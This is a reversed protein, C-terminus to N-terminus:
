ALLKAILATDGFQVLSAVKGDTDFEFLDYLETEAREGGKASLVVRWRVAAKLGDVLAEERHLEHFTVLDIMEDVVGKASGKAKSFAALAPLGGGIRFVADPAWYGALAAKDGRRRADYAEDITKLVAARDLM